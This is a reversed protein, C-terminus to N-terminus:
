DIIKHGSASVFLINGINEYGEFVNQGLQKIAEERLGVMTLDSDVSRENIIEKVSVNDEKEILDINQASIPLRGAKILELVRRQATMRLGKAQMRETLSPEPALREASKVFAVYGLRLDLQVVLQGYPLLGLLEPVVVKGDEGIPNCLHELRGGLLHPTEGIRVLHHAAM